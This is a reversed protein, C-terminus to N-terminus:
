EKFHWKISYGLDSPYIKRDRFSFTMTSYKYSNKAITCADCWTKTGDGYYVKYTVVIPKNWRNYVTVNAITSVSTGTMDDWSFQCNVYIDVGDGEYIYSKSYGASQGFVNNNIFFLIFFCFLFFILSKKLCFILNSLNIKIM